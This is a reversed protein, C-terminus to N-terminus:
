PMVGAHHCAVDHAGTAAFRALIPVEGACQADAM